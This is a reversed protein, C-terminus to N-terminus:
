HNWQRASLHASVAWMLEQHHTPRLWLHLLALSANFTCSGPKAPGAQIWPTLSTQSEQCRIPRGDGYAVQWQIGAPLVSAPQGSNPVPISAQTAQGLLAMRIDERLSLCLLAWSVGHKGVDGMRRRRAPQNGRKSGERRAWAAEREARREMQHSSLQRGSPHTEVSFPDSTAALARRREKSGHGSAQKVAPFFGRLCFWDSLTIGSSQRRAILFRQTDREPARGGERKKIGRRQQWLFCLQPKKWRPSTAFLPAVAALWGPTGRGM